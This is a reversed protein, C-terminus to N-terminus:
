KRFLFSPQFRISWDPGTAPADIYYRYGFQLSIPQGSIKLLQQAFVNM